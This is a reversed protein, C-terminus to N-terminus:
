QLGDVRDRLFEVGLVREALDPEPLGSPSPYLVDVRKKLRSGAGRKRHTASMPEFRPKLLIQSQKLRHTPKITPSSM